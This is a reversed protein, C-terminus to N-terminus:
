TKTHTHARVSFDQLVVKWCQQEDLGTWTALLLPDNVCIQRRAVRTVWQPPFCRENKTQLLWSPKLWVPFYEYQNRSRPSTKSDRQQSLDSQQSTSVPSKSFVFVTVSIHFYVLRDQSSSNQKQSSTFLYFESEASWAAPAPGNAWFM